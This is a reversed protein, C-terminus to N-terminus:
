KHNRSSRRWIKKSGANWYFDKGTKVEWPHLKYWDSTWPHNQWGEPVFYPWAGEMDEPKPDNSLDGNSFREPFIQYWIAKKAWSPVSESKNQAYLSNVTLVLLCIILIKKM